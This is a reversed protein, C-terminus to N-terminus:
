TFVIKVCEVGGNGNTSCCKCDNPLTCTVTGNVSEASMDAIDTPGCAPDGQCKFGGGGVAFASGLLFVVLVVSCCFPVLYKM